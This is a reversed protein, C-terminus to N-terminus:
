YRKLKKWLTQLQMKLKKEQGNETPVYYQRGEFKAPFYNQEVFNDKFDHAYKYEKGYDLSKMLKTPANRLHLPVPINGTKKVIGIASDIAEYATNSKPSTAM